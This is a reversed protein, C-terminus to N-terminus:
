NSGNSGLGQVLERFRILLQDPPEGKCVFADAGATMAAKEAEPRASMIIVKPKSGLGHFAFLLAAAPRGPLEWDLLVLEPKFTKIETALCVVDTCERIVLQDMEKALLTHLACRVRTDDDALLIRLETRKSMPTKGEAVCEGM